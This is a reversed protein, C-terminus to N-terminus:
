NDAWPRQPNDLKKRAAKRVSSDQDEAEAQRLAAEVDYRAKNDKWIKTIAESAYRSYIVDGDGMLNILLPLAPPGIRALADWAASQMSADKTGNEMVVRIRGPDAKFLCVLVATRVATLVAPSYDYFEHFTEKPTERDIVVECVVPKCEPLSLKCSARLYYGTISEKTGRYHRTGGILVYHDYTASRPTTEVELKLAADKSATDAADLRRLGAAALVGSVAESIEKRLAQDKRQKESDELGSVYCGKVEDYAGSFRLESLRRAIDHARRDVQPAMTVRWRRRLRARSALYLWLCVVTGAALLCAPLLVLVARKRRGSRDPVHCKAGCARCMDTLGALSGPSVLRAGCSACKYRIVGKM